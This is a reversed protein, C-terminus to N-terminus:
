DRCTKILNQFKKLNEPSLLHSYTKIYQTLLALAKQKNGTTLYARSLNYVSNANPPSFEITKEWYYISKDLDGSILYAIGLGDYAPAYNPDQEMSKKFFDVAKQHDSLKKTKNYISLYLHGCNSLVSADEDDISLAKEFTKQANELDGTRLYAFGLMNWIHPELDMQVVHFNECLIIVDQFQAAESLYIVLDLFIEYNSPHNEMGAKLVEIADELRGKDRYMAALGKYAIDIKETESLVEKLSEMTSDLSMKKNQYLKIAWNAKTWYPLLIKIDDEPGFSDKASFGPNSIYGLSRLKELADQDITKRPKVAKPNSQVKQIRVLQMRYDDLKKEKALNNLEGFDNELDYFEPIPSDVFKEKKDIFGWLPAWGKSYFPHLSEYYIAKEELKKGKMAPLLSRGQLFYPKEIDLIDCVTPFFDVHSVYQDVRGNAIGPSCIILPIWMVENYAFYGHTMEGHQGLAEGHDATFAILTNKYLDNKELCGFLRKLATDVYAVEGDYPVKDHQKRFPDPSIYPDHPDYCHIWLFWPSEKLELWALAKEVVFEARIEVESVKGFDDDYMDFGQDLGFRSDLPFGGIFAGTHYGFAKLHEALTLFEESLIFNYNDHVGHYLPTTGCLINTHSPLTTSTHAFARSFLIGREALSDINPTLLHEKSYCSLRDARLTDITILLVNKNIKDPDSKACLSSFPLFLQLCLIAFFPYFLTQVRRM